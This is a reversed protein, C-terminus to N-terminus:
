QWLPGDSLKPLFLRLPAQGAQQSLAARSSNDARHVYGVRNNGSLTTGKNNGFTREEKCGSRAKRESIVTGSDKLFAGGAPPGCCHFFANREAEESREDLRNWNSAILLQTHRLQLPFFLPLDPPPSVRRSVDQWAIKFRHKLKQTETSPMTALHDLGFGVLYGTPLTDNVTVSVISFLASTQLLAIFTSLLIM